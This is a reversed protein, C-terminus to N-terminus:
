FFPILPALLSQYFKYYRDFV